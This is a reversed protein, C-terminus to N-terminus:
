VEEEEEEYKEEEEKANKTKNGMVSAPPEFCKCHLKKGIVRKKVRGLNNQALFGPGIRTRLM